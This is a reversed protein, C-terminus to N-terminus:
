SKKEGVNKLIYENYLPSENHCKQIAKCQVNTLNDGGDGGQTQVRKYVLLPHHLGNLFFDSCVPGQHSSSLSPARRLGGGIEASLEV